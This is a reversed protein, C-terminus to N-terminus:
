LSSRKTTTKNPLDQRVEFTGTGVKAPLGFVIQSSPNKAEEHQGSVIADTLFAVSTEYSMKLFPSPNTAIGIRNFATFKGTFTMYDALLSLHRYNVDISYARFVAAMESIAVARAAEIGYSKLFTGPDNCYIDATNFVHQLQWVQAINIGATQLRFRKDTNDPRMVAAKEIGAMDWVKITATLEELLSIMLLKAKSAPFSCVFSATQETNNWEIGSMYQSIIKKDEDNEKEIDEKDEEEESSAEDEEDEGYNSKDKAESTGQEAKGSKKSPAAGMDVDEPELDGVISSIIDFPDEDSTVAGKANKTTEALIVTGTKKLERAVFRKFAIPFKAEFIAKFRKWSIHKQHMKFQMKIDYRRKYSPKDGTMVKEQVLTETSETCVIFSDLFVRSLKEAISSASNENNFAPNLPLVMFPTTCLSGAAMILERLRPIGLTVNVEGKGALHFTNLTMQTSPEGISQGAITGVNEGPAALSRMYKFYMVQRFEEKKKATKFKEPNKLIYNDIKAEFDESVAGLKNPFRNTLLPDLAKKEGNTKQEEKVSQKIQEIEERPVEGIIETNTDIDYKKKLAELNDYLFDFQTLFGVSMVDISDEGYNFQFVSGDSDRVTSDYGVVMGELHKIICRQLYGSRSTKVATDILGERGAMCHFFYEQPRIGTLFRDGVFGGARPNPDYPTFCPLTKGTDMLPVRRGELEQQGLLCSVQSFNVRSGKAGSTTMMTFNNRPFPKILGTCEQIVSTTQKSVRSIMVADWNAFHTPNSLLNRLLQSVVAEKKKAEPLLKTEQDFLKHPDTEMVKPSPIAKAFLAAQVVGIQPSRSLISTRKAESAEDILLDDIGCTFGRMQLFLIFVRCLLSLLSGAFPPGYLEYVSHVLGHAKNGFHKKGLVGCLLQNQRIIVEGEEQGKGWFNGPIQSSGTMNMPEEGLLLHDLIASIVQKGTWLPEPKLITPMPTKIAHKKNIKWCCYYVLQQFEGKTLFTDKCTLYVGSVINDQILGRLPTGDKPVIYQNDTNCIIRAESKALESQPFHVNMEDGDFDANYTNCNAYHMHITKEAGLVHAKHTMMSPKHLTPQRNVLLYDGTICHRHVKKVRFLKNNAQPKQLMKAVAVRKEPLASLKIIVGDEDEVAKAGPYVDPGNLVLERLWSVNHDTVPEPYTLTKAFYEPIGIEDTDLYPDPSIVSRAAFNVRKGMMNKRFLGEKKEIIQKIGQGFLKKTTDPTHDTINNILTQIEITFQMKGAEQNEFAPKNMLSEYSHKATVIKSFFGTQPHDSLMDGSFSPPRFRSPPVALARVFFINPDTNRVSQKESNLSIGTWLYKVLDVENEWLASVRRLIEEPYIMTNATIDKLGSGNKKKDGPALYNVESSIGSKTRQPIPKVMVRAKGPTVFKLAPASCNECSPVQCIKKFKKHFYMREEQTARTPHLRVDLSDESEANELLAEIKQQVMEDVLVSKKVELFDDLSRSEALKGCEVLRLVKAWLERKEDCILFHHCNWCM